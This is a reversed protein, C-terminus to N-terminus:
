QRENREKFQMEEIKIPYEGSFCATCYGQGNDMPMANLMADLSLYKLSDVGLYIKIEDIEKQSAILEEKTPFDMGYFCPYKIPPSSVRIHVEKSGAARLRKVLARLTTGRVISDDVIVIRRDKIVGGVTNFKIRVNMDRMKQKPHIFTRGVYHNRILGIEFKAESRAAYGLAATNSSDPVSIVIDADCPNEIALNKGLKRRTKDVYENFIQSDPRSFYIFEFVCHKPKPQKEIKLSRLGKDDVVLMEGCKVDRIYDAGILDFACTESAFVVSDGRKGLALPRFGHPDRVAILKKRTIFVLSFAGEIQAVADLIKEEITEEKSKAVLHLIVESDTTTQFISGREELKERLTHSNVLNGNHAIGITGLRHNVVIPGINQENSSGTTSYRNHGVAIYGPLNDLVHENFVDSVLGMGLHKYVQEGDSSAIGASEQG